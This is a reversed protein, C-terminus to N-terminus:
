LLYSTIISSIVCISVSRFLYANNDSIYKYYITKYKTNIYTHYRLKFLVLIRYYICTNHIAVNQM